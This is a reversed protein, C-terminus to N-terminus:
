QKYMEEIRKYYLLDLEARMRQLVHDNRIGERDIRPKNKGGKPRGLM